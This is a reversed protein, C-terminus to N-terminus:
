LSYGIDSALVSHSPHEGARTTKIDVLRVGLAASGWQQSVNLIDKLSDATDRRTEDDTERRREPRTTTSEKPAM